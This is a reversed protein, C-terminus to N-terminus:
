DCQWPVLRGLGSHPRGVEVVIMAGTSLSAPSAIPEEFSGDLEVLAGHSLSATPATPEMFSAALEMFSGSYTVAGTSPDISAAATTAATSSSYKQGEM